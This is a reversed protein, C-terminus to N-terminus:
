GHDGTTPLWPTHRPCASFHQLSIPIPLICDGVNFYYMYYAIFLNYEYYIDSSALYQICNNM